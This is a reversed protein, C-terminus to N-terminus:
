IKLQSHIIKTTSFNPLRETVEIVKGGVLDAQEIKHNLSPDNKTVAIIDPEIRKTLEYYEKDTKLHPLMVIFDVSPLTSLVQARKKQSNIPRDNGKRKKVSEDSELLIILTSGQSKAAAIFHVHGEHLIDFCGGALVLPEHLEIKKLETSLNKYDIIKGM